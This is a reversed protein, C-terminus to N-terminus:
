YIICMKNTQKLFNQPSSKQWSITRLIYNNKNYITVGFLFLKRQIDTHTILLQKIKLPGSLIPVVAIDNRNKSNKTKTLATSGSGSGPPCFHGVFM